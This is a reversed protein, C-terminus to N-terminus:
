AGRRDIIWLGGLLLGVIVVAIVGAPVGDDVLGALGRLALATVVLGWLITAARAM